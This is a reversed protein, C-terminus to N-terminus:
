FSQLESLRSPTNSVSVVGRAAEALSVIVGLPEFTDCFEAHGKTEWGLLEMIGDVIRQTEERLVALELVSYDDFYKTALLIFSYAM